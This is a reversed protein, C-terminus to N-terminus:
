VVAPPHIAIVVTVTLAMGDVIVEVGAPKLAQIPEVVINLLVTGPPVHLLLAVPMAVIPDTVPSTLPPAAPM